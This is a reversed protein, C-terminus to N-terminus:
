NASKYKCNFRQMVITGSFSFLYTSCRWWEEVFMSPLVTLPSNQLFINLDESGDIKLVIGLILIIIFNYHDTWSLLGMVVCTANHCICCRKIPSLCRCDGVNRHNLLIVPRRFIVGSDMGMFHLMDSYHILLEM